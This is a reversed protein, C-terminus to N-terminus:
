RGSTGSRRQERPFPVLRGPVTMRVSSMATKTCPSPSRYIESARLAVIVLTEIAARESLRGCHNNTRVGVGNASVIKTPRPRLYEKVSPDGRVAGPNIELFRKKASPTGM